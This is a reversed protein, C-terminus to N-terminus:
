GKKYKGRKLSYVWRLNEINNNLLNKDIHEVFHYNNPNDLFVTAILRHVYFSKNIGNHSLVVQLRGNNMFQTLPKDKKISYVLGDRSMAYKSFMEIEFQKDDM